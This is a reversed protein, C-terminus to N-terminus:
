GGFRSLLIVSVLALLIGAIEHKNLTEGFVIHGLATLLLITSLSYVVGITALKIHRMVIVWGFACAAYAIFGIFFWKNSFSSAEQSALKLFYDGVVTVIALAMVYLAIMSYIRAHHGSPLRM